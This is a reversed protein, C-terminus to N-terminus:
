STQRQVKADSGMPKPLIVQSGSGIEQALLLDIPMKISVHLRAGKAM